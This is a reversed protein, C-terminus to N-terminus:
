KLLYVIIRCAQCGCRLGLIVLDIEESLDSSQLFVVALGLVLLLALVGADVRFWANNWVTQDPTDVPGFLWRKLAVDLAALLTLCM